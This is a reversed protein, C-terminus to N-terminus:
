IAQWAHLLAHVLEGGEYFYKHDIILRQNDFFEAFKQFAAVVTTNRTRGTAFGNLGEDGIGVYAQHQAVQVHGVHVADFQGLVQLFDGAFAAQKFANQQRPRASLCSTILARRM